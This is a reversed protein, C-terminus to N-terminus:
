PANQKLWDNMWAIEKEQAAIVAEALARVQPDKGYQLVVQAMEVAGQHHPIMGRIFDVDADGTFEIAMDAHMRANAQAYAQTSPNDSPAATHTSHDVTQAALITALLAAAGVGLALATKEM